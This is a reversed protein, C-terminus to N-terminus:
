ATGIRALYSNIAMAEIGQERLADISLSGLRKSLGEGATDSLLPLHAFGPPEAGLARFLQIQAGTNTIHDSGRIVHSIGFAIDDVVSPLTYLYSGDERVLVPDSQSAEDIRQDGRVLDTWAVAERTLLF